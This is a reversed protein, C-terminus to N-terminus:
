LTMNLKVGHKRKSNQETKNLKITDKETNIIRKKKM